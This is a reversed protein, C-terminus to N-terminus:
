VSSLSSTSFSNRYINLKHATRTPVKFVDRQRLAGSLHFSYSLNRTYNQCSQSIEDMHCLVQSYIVEVILTLKVTLLNLIM